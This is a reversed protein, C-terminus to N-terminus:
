KLSALHFVLMSSPQLEREHFLRHFSFNKKIRYPYLLHSTFIIGGKRGGDVGENSGGDV